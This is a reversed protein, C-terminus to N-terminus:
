VSRAPLPVDDFFDAGEQVATRLATLTNEPAVGSGCRHAVVLPRM